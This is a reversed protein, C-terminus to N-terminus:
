QRPFTGLGARFKATPPFTSPLDVWGRRGREGDWSYSSPPLKSPFLYTTTMQLVLTRGVSELDSIPTSFGTPSCPFNPTLPTSMDDRENHFSM